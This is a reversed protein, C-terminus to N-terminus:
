TRLGSDRASSTHRGAYNQAAAGEGERSLILTESGRADALPLHSAASPDQQSRAATIMSTAAM